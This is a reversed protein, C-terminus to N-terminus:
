GVMERLTWTRLNDQGLNNIWLLSPQQKGTAPSSKSHLAVAFSYKKHLNQLINWVNTANAGHDVLVLQEHRFLISIPQDKLAHKLALELGRWKAQRRRQKDTHTPQQQYAVRAHANPTDAYRRNDPKQQLLFDCLTDVLTRYRGSISPSTGPRTNIYIAFALTHANATYLYGSLSMIGTMSGTKARVLGQQTPKRLRRQLTGDQGAIPLAAIYEYALPFRDHLYRLLTVTQNPTLLDLRSLGSGDTLIANQLNVGTQQQLFQKVASQAQAWDVTGGKLKTAAQLFLSDAYLNDSPKLTDAMLQTIPKSAHSALLLSAGTGKGLLIQGDLAIHRNALQVKIVQQAYKLPNHIPIRQIISSQDVAICGRVTLQNEQDLNFSIGCGAPTKATKVQNIIPISNTPAKYEVIAPEGVRYAPNVIVTLRNEDLIVPSVPAGYSYTLDRAVVGPAHANISSRGSILIVNGQIRNVGWNTLQAFLHNLHVHTFSPDGPLNIYLSGKLTGQELSTADTSLQSVFRYDPGLALLAAADSFLKMNSAPIFTHKANRQYLMEGTNLDVVEIGMNINPDVQNIIHDIPRQLSTASVASWLFCSTLGLLIRKM